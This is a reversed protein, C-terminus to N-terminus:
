NLGSVNGFQQLVGTDALYANTENLEPLLIVNGEADYYTDVTDKTLIIQPSKTLEPPSVGNTIATAMALLYQGWHSMFISGEAVWNPNTRLEQLAAVSGGLGAVLAKDSRGAESVARWAGLASDDNVAFLLINKDAPVTQLVNRVANYTDELTARGDVQIGTAGIRTTTAIIEEPTVKDLGMLEAATTYFYRVCDNVEVGAFSAQAIIVITDESTWRRAHAENVVAKAAEEGLERNVLNFWHGGPIPINVAIYPIGAREFTRQLSAGIGEVPTYQIIVDPHRQVMLNANNIAVQSDGANNFRMVKLQATEAAVMLNDGLQKFMEGQEQINAFAFVPGNEALTPMASLTLTLASSALFSRRSLTHNIM